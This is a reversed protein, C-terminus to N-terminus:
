PNFVGNKFFSKPFGGTQIIKDQILYLYNYVCDYYYNSTLNYVERYEKLLQRRTSTKINLAKTM